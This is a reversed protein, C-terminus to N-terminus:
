LNAARAERVCQVEGHADHTATQRTHLMSRCAARSGFERWIGPANNLLIKVAQEAM